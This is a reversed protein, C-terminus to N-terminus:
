GLQHISYIIQRSHGALSFLVGVALGADAVEGQRGVDCVHVGLVADGVRIVGDGLQRRGRGPEAVGARLVPNGTAIIHRHSRRVDLNNSPNVRGSSIRSRSRRTGRRVVPVKLVNITTGLGM